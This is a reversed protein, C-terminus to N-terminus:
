RTSACRCRWSIRASLVPTAEACSGAAGAAWGSGAADVGASGASVVTEDVLVVSLEDEVWATVVVEAVVALASALTVVEIVVLPGTGSVGSLRARNPPGM